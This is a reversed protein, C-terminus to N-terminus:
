RKRKHKSNEDTRSCLRILLLGGGAKETEASIKELSFAGKGGGRAKQAVNRKWRKTGVTRLDWSHVCMLFDSKTRIFTDPTSELQAKNVLISSSGTNM